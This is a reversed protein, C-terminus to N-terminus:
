AQLEVVFTKLGAAKAMALCGRAGRSWPVMVVILAEAKDVMQQNRRPGASKGFTNWDAPYYEVPVNNRKAWQEGHTDPGRCTGCLVTTVDFGSDRIAKETIASDYVERSGAIITRM